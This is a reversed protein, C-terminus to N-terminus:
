IVNLESNAWFCVACMFIYLIKISQFHLLNEDLHQLSHIFDKCGDSSNIFLIITSVLWTGLTTTTDWPSSMPAVCYKREVDCHATIVYSSTCHWTLCERDNTNRCLLPMEAAQLALFLAWKPQQLGYKLQHWGDLFPITCFLKMGSTNHVM